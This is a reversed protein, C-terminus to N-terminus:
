KMILTREKVKLHRITLGSEDPPEDQPYNDVSSYITIPENRGRVRLTLPGEFNFFSSQSAGAQEYTAATVLVEGSRAIGVLRSAQNVTDGVVTYALQAGRGLTGTVVEGTALAVGIRIPPLHDSGRKENLDALGSRIEEAARLASAAHNPQEIPAGFLALVGDGLFRDVSGGHKFVASTVVDVYDSLMTVVDEAPMRETYQTFGRIDTFMVTAHVRGTLPADKGRVGMRRGMAAIAHAVAPSFYRELEAVRQLRNLQRSANAMMTFLALYFGAMLTGILMWADRKETEITDYLDTIEQYVEFVGIVEFSNRPLIPVYLEMVKGDIADTTNELKALDTIESEVHGELAEELEENEAHAEGILDAQDSWIIQRDTNWVKIRYIAYGSLMNDTNYKWADYEEPSSHLNSFEARADPTELWFPHKARIVEALEDRANEVAAREISATVQSGLLLAIIATTVLTVASFRQL